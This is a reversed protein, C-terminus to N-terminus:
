RQARGAPKPVTVDYQALVLDVGRRILAAVPIETEDHIGQLAAIQRELLRVSVMRKETTATKRNAM